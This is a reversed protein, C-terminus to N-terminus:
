EQSIETILQQLTQQDKASGSFIKCNYKEDFHPTKVLVEKMFSDTTVIDCYPVVTALIATDRPDSNRPTRKFYYYTQAENISCFIDIFPTSFLESSDFFTFKKIGISTLKALNELMELFKAAENEKDYQDGNQAKQLSSIFAPAGFHRYIFARKGELLAEDWSKSERHSIATKAKDAWKGKSQRWRKVLLEPMPFSVDIRVKVGNIDEMRSEVPSKPDSSFAISWDAVPPLSKGLFKYAAHEIQTQLIAEWENFELGYSLHAATKNIELELRRDFSSEEQHFQSSPCAIKNAVVANKLDKFLSIWFEKASDNKIM